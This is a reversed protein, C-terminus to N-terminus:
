PVPLKACRPDVNCGVLRVVEGTSPAVELFFGVDRAYYKREVVGPELPSFNKTVVCDRSCLLRALPPPVLQDLTADDGFGYTTSLVEALDEANTLSFEERYVEGPQPSALFIIGPKAGDRGAKFSGDISVLEPKRPRDGVFSEFSKVEEGCYWVNGDKAQAFWDDTDEILRGEDTVRDRVVVCRVGEILKTQNLVETTTSETGARYEWRNGIRLPFYQNPNTLNTFDRDFTDPEFDPDYRSEGLAACVEDRETRQDHCLQDAELRSAKAESLCNMREDRDSINICIAVAVSHDDQVGSECARLVAAATNSCFRQDASWALGPGLCIASILLIFSVGKWRTKSAM